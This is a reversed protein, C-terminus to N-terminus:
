TVLCFENGEPDLLVQFAGVEDEVIGGSAVAGAAVLRVTDAPIDDSWVDIHVRNKVTKVEPVRQFGVLLGGPRPDRVTAWDDSRVRGPRWCRAGSRRWRCRTPATSWWRACPPGTSGDRDPVVAFARVTFTGLGAVKPPVATFRAGQVPLDALDTLHEVIPVGAALLKTHAPREGGITTDINLSDIGVLAAGAAVLADITADPLFPHEDSLYRETGWHQVM